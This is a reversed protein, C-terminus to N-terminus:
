SQIRPSRDDDPWIRLQLLRTRLQIALARAQRGGVEFVGGGDANTEDVLVKVMKESLMEGGNLVTNHAIAEITSVCMFAALAPDIKRMEKRHRELYARVLGHIEHNYAEVEALHGSRPIQEALVRHM